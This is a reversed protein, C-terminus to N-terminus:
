FSPPGSRIQVPSREDKAGGRQAVSAGESAKTLAGDEEDGSM